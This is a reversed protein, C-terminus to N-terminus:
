RNASTPPTPALRQRIQEAVARPDYSRAAPVHLIPLGAAACVADIFGDRAQRDPRAHSRDDFEVVLRPRTSGADCLVFDLQKRDIKNQATQWRSANASRSVSVELVEALRVSPFISLVAGGASPDAGELMRVAANLVPLFAKEGPSMLSERARYPFSDDLRGRPSSKLLGLRWAIHWLVGLVIFVPVLM